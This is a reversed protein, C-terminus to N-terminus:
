CVVERNVAIFVDAASVLAICCAVLALAAVCIELLLADDPTGTGDGLEGDRNVM